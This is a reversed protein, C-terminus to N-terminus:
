ALQKSAPRRGAEFWSAYHFKAKLFVATTVPATGLAHSINVNRVATILHAASNRRSHKRTCNMSLIIDVGPHRGDRHFVVSEGTREHLIRRAVTASITAAVITCCSRKYGDNLDNGCHNCCRNCPTIVRYHTILSSAASCARTDVSAVSYCYGYSRCRILITM